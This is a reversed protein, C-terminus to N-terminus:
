PVNDQVYMILVYKLFEPLVLLAVCVRIYLLIYTDM